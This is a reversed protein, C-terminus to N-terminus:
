VGEDLILAKLLTIASFVKHIISIILPNDVEIMGGVTIVIGKEANLMLLVLAKKIPAKFLYWDSATVASIVSISQDKLDSAQIALCIFEAFIAFTFVLIEFSRLSAVGDASLIYGNIVLSIYSMILQPVLITSTYKDISKGYKLLNCHHRICIKLRKMVAYQFYESNYKELDSAHLMLGVTINKLM